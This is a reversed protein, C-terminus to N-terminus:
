NRSLLTHRVLPPHDPGLFSWMSECWRAPNKEYGAAAEAHARATMTEFEPAFVDQDTAGAAYLEALYNDALLHIGPCSSAAYGAAELVMAVRFKPELMRTLRAVEEATPEQAGASTAGTVIAAIIFSSLKM